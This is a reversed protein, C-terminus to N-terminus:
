TSSPPHPHGRANELSFGRGLTCGCVTPFLLGLVFAASQSRASLGRVCGLRGRPLPGEAGATVKVVCFVFGTKM